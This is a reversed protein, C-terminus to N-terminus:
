TRTALSSAANPPSNRCVITAMSPRVSARASSAGSSASRQMSGGGLAPVSAVAIRM